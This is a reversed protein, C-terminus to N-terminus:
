KKVCEINPKCFSIDAKPLIVQQVEEPLQIGAAVLAVLCMGALGSFKTM